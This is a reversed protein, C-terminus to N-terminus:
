LGKPWNDVSPEIHQKRPCLEEHQFPGRIGCGKSAQKSAPQKRLGHWDILVNGILVRFWHALFSYISLPDARVGGRGMDWAGYGMGDPMSQGGLARAGKLKAHPCQCTQYTLAPCNSCCMM